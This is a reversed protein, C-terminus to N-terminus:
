ISRTRIQTYIHTSNGIHPEIIDVRTAITEITNIGGYKRSRRGQITTELTARSLITQRLEEKSIHVIVLINDSINEFNMMIVSKNSSYEGIEEKRVYGM